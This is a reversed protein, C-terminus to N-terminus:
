GDVRLKVVVVLHNHVADIDVREAGAREFLATLRKTTLLHLHEPNDDPRSPVSAIVFRRGVRVLEGIAQEVQEIHELVELATILDFASDGFHLATADMRKAHLASVGGQAVAQLQRVREADMDICTVPLAPFAELLPWLFAGRGSGIDLVHQPVLGHLLGLVKRVRPLPRSRKYRHLRLGAELGNVITPVDDPEALDHRTGRVYAATPRVYFRSEIDSPDPTAM